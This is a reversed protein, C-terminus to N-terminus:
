IRPMEEVRSITRQQSNGAFLLLSVGGFILEMGVFLGIVWIGSAPWELWILAGLLLNVVGAIILWTKRRGEFQGAIFLRALGAIVFFAALLLTIGIAGAVPDFLLLAGVLTYLAGSGFRLAAGGAQRIALADVIQVIGAILLLGGFFLVTALTTAFAAAIAVLGLVVLMVGVAMFFWPHRRVARKAESEILMGEVSPEYPM